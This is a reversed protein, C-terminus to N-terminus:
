NTPRYVKLLRVQVLNGRTKLVEWVGVVPLALLPAVAFINGVIIAFTPFVYGDKGYSPAQYQAIAM